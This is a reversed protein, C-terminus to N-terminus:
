NPNRRFSVIRWDNGVQRLTIHVTGSKGGTSTFSGDLRGVRNRISRSTWNWQAPRHDQVLASMGTVSGLEKQLDPACLAYAHADNDTKLATMFDDGVSVIPQTLTSTLLVIGLVFLTIIAALAGLFMTWLLWRPLRKTASVTSSVRAPIESIPGERRYVKHWSRKGCNPCRMLNRQNGVAKYRIGGIDWISREYGCVPCQVMWTRSDAEMQAATAPSVLGTFLKQVASRREEGM